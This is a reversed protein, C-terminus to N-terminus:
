ADGLVFRTVAEAFGEPNDIMVSHGARPVVALSGRALAEDAMRDATDPSLVDSAAGRVVLAPCTTARLADWLAATEERGRREAEAPDLSQWRAVLGPDTKPVLRGDERTRLGHRALRAIVAPRALPYAASLLREFEGVSTFSPDPRSEADFRIRSVGRPDLDPGSDVIVLGALREPHAGAFRMAVRGGMSHGLLVCRPIALADLAAAVDRAMTEHDYRAEPDADADGHGRLDLAVTRYYPAICPAFDDFVHADNSFGHLLVFPVGADSWVLAHLSLGDSAPVRISRPTM